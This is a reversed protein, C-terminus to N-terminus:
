LVSDVPSFRRWPRRLLRYSCLAGHSDGMSKAAKRLKRRQKRKLEILDKELGDKPGEISRREFVRRKIIGEDIGDVKFERVPYRSTVEFGPEAGGVTGAQAVDKDFRRRRSGGSRGRRGTDRERREADMRVYVISKEQSKTVETSSKEIYRESEGDRKGGDEKVQGRKRREAARRSESSFGKLILVQTVTDFCVVEDRKSDVSVCFGPSPARAAPSSTPV